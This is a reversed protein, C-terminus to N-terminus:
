RTKIQAIKRQLSRLNFLIQAFVSTLKELKKNEFSKEEIEQRLLDTQNIKEGLAREAEEWKKNKINEQLTKEFDKFDKKYESVMIKIDRDMDKDPEESWVSDLPALLFASAALGTKKL